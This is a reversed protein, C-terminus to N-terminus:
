YHLLEYNFNLEPLYYRSYYERHSYDFYRSDNGSGVIGGGSNQLDDYVPQPPAPPTQVALTSNPFCSMVTKGNYRKSAKSKFFIPIFENEIDGVEILGSLKIDHWTGIINENDDYQRFYVGLIATLSNLVNPTNILNQGLTKKVNSIRLSIGETARTLELNLADVPALRGLYPFGGLNPIDITALRLANGDGLIISLTTFHGATGLADKLSQSLHNRGM